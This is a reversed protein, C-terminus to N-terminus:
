TVPVIMEIGSATSAVVRGGRMKLGTVEGLDPPVECIFTAGDLRKIGVVAARADEASDDAGFVFGPGILSFDDNGM